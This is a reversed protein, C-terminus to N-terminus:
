ENRHSRQERCVLRRENSCISSLLFSSRSILLHLNSEDGAGAASPPERARRDSGARFSEPLVPSDAALGLARGSANAIPGRILCSTTESDTGGGGGWSAWQRPSVSARSSDSATHTWFGAKFILRRPGPTDLRPERPGGDQM